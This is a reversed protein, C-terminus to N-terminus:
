RLSHHGPTRRGPFRGPGAPTQLLNKRSFTVQNMGALAERAIQPYSQLRTIERAEQGSLVSLTIRARCQLGAPGSARCRMTEQLKGILTAGMEQLTRLASIERVIKCATITQSHARELELAQEELRRTYEEQRSVMQNFSAALTAIEDQGQVAVRVKAEGRDIEQTAQVLAALPRTIRRVFLLGGMWAM